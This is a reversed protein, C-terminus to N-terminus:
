NFILEASVVKESLWIDSFYLKLAEWQELIHSVVAALSLWRTQSSHLIKHPKLDLFEQFQVLECQRKSSCKFHNFIERVLDKCRRPLVKCAESACLHASHYVCRM